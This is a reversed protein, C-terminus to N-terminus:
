DAVSAATNKIQALLEPNERLAKVKNNLSDTLKFLLDTLSDVTDSEAFQQLNQKLHSSNVINQAKDKYHLLESDSISPPLYAKFQKNEPSYPDGYYLVALVLMSAVLMKKFM